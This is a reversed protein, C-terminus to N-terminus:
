VEVTRRTTKKRALALAPKEVCHWSAVALVMTVVFSLLFLAMATLGPFLSILSQQVPYAYIYTGYSYDGLRNFKLIPGTPLYALCVMAYPLAAAYAIGFYLGHSASLAVVALLFMLVVWSLPIAARYLYLAAGTCFMFYLRMPSDELTGHQLARIHLGLLVLWTISVVAKFLAPRDVLKLIFWCGLLILYCSVELPLTWLSGNVAVPSPNAAFVGPLVYDINKLLVLNQALYRWTGRSEFYAPISLTTFVPGLVFITVLLATILGPWIRFFRARVFDAASNRRLLSITVLLGSILFFLDVAISGPTCGLATRLPEDRRDGSALPFSHSFLVASAAMLRLLHYSNDRGHVFTQLRKM